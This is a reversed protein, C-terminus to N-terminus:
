APSKHNKLSNVAESSPHFFAAQAAQRKNMMKQMRIMIPFITKM